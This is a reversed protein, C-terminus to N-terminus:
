STPFGVEHLQCDVEHLLFDLKNFNVGQDGSTHGAPWYEAMPGCTTVGQVADFSAM